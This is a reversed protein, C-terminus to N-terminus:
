KENYGIEKLKNHLGRYWDYNRNIIKNNIKAHKKELFDEIKYSYDINLLHMGDKIIDKPIKDTKLIRPINLILYEIFDHFSSFEWQNGIGLVEKPDLGRQFSVSENVTKAKM